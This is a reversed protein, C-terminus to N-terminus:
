FQTREVDYKNFYCKGLGIRVNHLSSSNYICLNLTQIADCYNLKWVNTNGPCRKQISNKYGGKNKKKPPMKKDKRFKNITQDLKSTM